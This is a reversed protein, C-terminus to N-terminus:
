VFDAEDETASLASRNSLSSQSNSLYDREQSTGQGLMDLKRGLLTSRGTTLPTSLKPVPTESRNQSDSSDSKVSWTRSLEPVKDNGDDAFVYEAYAINGISTSNTKVLPGPSSDKDRKEPHAAGGSDRGDERSCDSDSNNSKNSYLNTVSKSRSSKTLSAPGPIRTPIESNEDRRPRVKLIEKIKSVLANPNKAMEADIDQWSSQLSDSDYGATYGCSESHMGNDHAGTTKLTDKGEQSHSSTSSHGGSKQVNLFSGPMSSSRRFRDDETSPFKPSNAGNAHGSSFGSSSVGSGSSTKVSAVSPSRRSGKNSKNDSNKDGLQPGMSGGPTNNISARLEQEKFKEFLKEMKRFMEPDEPLPELTETNVQVFGNKSETLIAKIEELPRPELESAPVENVVVKARKSRPSLKRKPDSLTSDVWAETRNAHKEGNESGAPKVKATNVKQRYSSSDPTQSRSRTSGASDASPPRRMVTAKSTTRVAQDSIERQTKVREGDGGKSINSALKRADVSSSRIRKSAHAMIAVNRVLENIEEDDSFTIENTITMPQDPCSTPLTSLHQESRFQDKDAWCADLSGRRAQGTADGSFGTGWKERPGPTVAQGGSSGPGPTYARRAHYLEKYSNGNNNSSNISSNVAQQKRSIITTPRPITAPVKFSSNDESNNSVPSSPTDESRISSSNSNSRTVLGPRSAMISSPRSLQSTNSQTSLDDSSADSFPIKPTNSRSIFSPKPIRSPTSPREKVSAALNLLQVRSLSSNMENNQEDDTSDYGGHFGVPTKSRTPTKPRTVPTDMEPRSEVWNSIAGAVKVVADRKLQSPTKPRSMKYEEKGLSKESGTPTQPRYGGVSTPTKPRSVVSGSVNRRQAQPTKPREAGPFRKDEDPSQPLSSRGNVNGARRANVRSSLADRVSRAKERLSDWNAGQNPNVGPGHSQNLTNAGSVHHQSDPLALSSNLLSKFETLTMTSIKEMPLGSRSGLSGVAGTECIHELSSTSPRAVPLMETREDFSVSGQPDAEHDQDFSVDEDDAEADSSMSTYTGRKLAKVKDGHEWATGKCLPSSSTAKMSSSRSGPGHTAGQPSPSRYRSYTNPSSSRIPQERNVHHHISTPFSSPQSVVGGQHASSAKRNMKTPHSNGTAAASGGAPTAPVHRSIILTPSKARSNPQAPQQPSASRERSAPAASPMRRPSTPTNPTPRTISFGTGSPRRQQATVAPHSGARHGRYNCQCPDHKNLYNELTDWGGGVRVMVHNRLIRVFILNHSDGIKYKGEGVKIMPFQIPCTCRSILDRVREDLSRMDCTKIQVRPKDEEGALEADIEEEMQVLTPALMGLKAGVRAIELLCLIVNKENKRLVLDDTEFSLVEPIGMQRGWSIFNSVNDRAQFTEPKVGERYPVNKEPINRIFYSKMELTEGKERRERAFQGVKNAHKCLLVGTELVSMFNEATIVTQYLCAFWDALDEKMAYLYENNTTFSRLSKPELVLLTGGDFDGAETTSSSCTSAGDSTSVYYGSDKCDRHGADKMGNPGGATLGGLFQGSGDHLHQAFKSYGGPSDSAM